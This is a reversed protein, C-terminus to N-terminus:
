VRGGKLILLSVFFCGLSSVTGSFIKSLNLIEVGQMIPLVLLAFLLLSLNGLIESLRELQLSNLRIM